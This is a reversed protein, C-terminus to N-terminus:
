NSDEPLPPIPIIEIGEESLAEAEDGTATGRISRAQTEGHHIKRAEEPFRSGVDESNAVVSRRFERLLEVFSPDIEPPESAGGQSPQTERTGASVAPAMIAKSVERSGCIPCCIQEAQAQKEYSAGSAFWAEFEHDQACRLAYKIM